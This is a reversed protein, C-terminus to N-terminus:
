ILNRGRARFSLDYLIEGEREFHCIYEFVIQHFDYLIEGEREFHCTMYSKERESSIVLRILNRGRARFSKHLFSKIFTM